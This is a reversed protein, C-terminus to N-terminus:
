SSASDRSASAKKKPKRKKAAREADLRSKIESHPVAVLRKMFDRFQEFNGTENKAALKTHIAM